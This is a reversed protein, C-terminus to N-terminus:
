ACIKLTVDVFYGFTDECYLLIPLKKFTSSNCCLTVCSNYGIPPEQYNLGADLLQKLNSMKFGM